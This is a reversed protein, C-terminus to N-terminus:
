PTVRREAQWLAPQMPGSSRSEVEGVFTVAERWDNADGGQRRARFSWAMSDASYLMARVRPDALATLKVGFGHLRLDPREAHIAELVAAIAAPKANRKCVSGVGVWAGYPLLRGYARVHVAYQQPEYGQLVPMIAVGNVLRTLECYRAITLAQHEEVSRGTREIIFPECMWDQSVAAVLTGCSAWRHIQEAYADIPETYNGHKTVTTFAGSDLIWEKVPFDSRRNRLANVSVMARAVRHAQHPHHMGVYFIV